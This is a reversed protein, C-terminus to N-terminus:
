EIELFSLRGIFFPTLFLVSFVRQLAQQVRIKKVGDRQSIEGIKKRPLWFFKPV